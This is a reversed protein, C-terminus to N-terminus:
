EEYVVTLTMTENHLICKNLDSKLPALEGYSYFGVLQVNSGLEDSLAELEEDVFDGMVARRGACSVVLGLAQKHSDLKSEKAADAAGLILRDINPKMLQASYGQPVDGGFMVSKDEENVYLLTRIVGIDEDDKKICIPYKFGARQISEEYGGIYRKYYDLMPEQDLEYIINHSSKTIIRKTGFESWGGQTGTKIILSDGYFALAAILNQKPTSNAMVYTKEVREGDGAMGGTKVTNDIITDFGSIIDSGNIKLGDALIFIHKLGKKEFQSALEKSLSEVDEGEKVEISKLLTTANEFRVATAVIANKSIESGLINGSSSCGIINAHPYKTKFYEYHSELIFEDTDGFISVLNANQLADQNNNEKNWMGLRYVFNEIKM